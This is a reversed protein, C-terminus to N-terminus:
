LIKRYNASQRGICMIEKRIRLKLFKPRIKSKLMKVAKWFGKKNKDEPNENFKELLAQKKDKKTSKRMEKKLDKIKQAHEPNQEAELKDREEIKKWTDESIYSQRINPPVKTLSNEAASKFNRGM